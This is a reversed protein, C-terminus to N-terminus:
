QAYLVVCTLVSAPMVLATRVDLLLHYFYALNRELHAATCADLRQKASRPALALMDGATIDDAAFEEVFQAALAPLLRRLLYSRYRELEKDAADGLKAQVCPIHM